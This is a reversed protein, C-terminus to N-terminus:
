VCFEPSVKRLAEALSEPFEGFVSASGSVEEDGDILAWILRSQDGVLATLTRRSGFDWDLSVEGTPMASIEPLALNSPFKRLLAITRAVASPSLAAAGYGDWNGHQCEDWTEIIEGILQSPCRTLSIAEFNGIESYELDHDIALADAGVGACVAVMAHSTTLAPFLAPAM